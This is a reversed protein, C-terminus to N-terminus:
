VLLQYDDPMEGKRFDFERVGDSTEALVRYVGELTGFVEATTAGEFGAVHPGYLEGPQATM